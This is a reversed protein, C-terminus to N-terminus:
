YAYSEETFEGTYTIRAEGELYVKKDDEIYIKLSGGGKTMMTVPSTALGDKVAFIACAVSGTGCALTENEVGREYTRIKFVNDEVKSFVNFNTGRPAFHKHYRVARGMNFIDSNDVDEVLLSAHPVGTNISSLIHPEGNINLEIDKKYDRPEPMLVKVNYGDKIEAEIIGALTKFRMTKGAINNLYAYRAACRAGNGCMEAVSADSNFFQWQFDAVKSKEIYLVGDAGISLSRACIKPILKEPAFSDMKGDRNDIIIFDNGSGSMKWFAIKM